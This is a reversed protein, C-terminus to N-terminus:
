LSEPKPKPYVEIRCDTVMAALDRAHEMADAEGEILVSYVGAAGNDGDPAWYPGTVMWLDSKPDLSAGVTVIMGAEPEAPQKSMERDEQNPDTRMFAGHSCFTLPPVHHQFDAMLAFSTGSHGKEKQCAGIYGFGGSAM